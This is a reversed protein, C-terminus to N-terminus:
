NERSEQSRSFTKGSSMLVGIPKLPSLNDCVIKITSAIPVSLIAGAIGWLWGWMLLSVLIIVPSLNLRDGMIKPTIFNGLGQQIILLGTSIIIAPGFSPYFQVLALLIPPFAAIFSGLNPIFNLLFTLVGWTVAFDLGVSAFLAWAIFGTAASIVFQLFLYSSIQGSIKKTVERARTANRSSLAKDIKIDFYPAGLLLFVLFFVVLILNTMFGVLFGSLALLQEGIVPALHVNEWWIPSIEFQEMITGILTEFRAHYRPYASIMAMIRTNIFLGGAACVGIFIALVATTTVPTPVKRSSMYKVIPAFLFYLLAAVVLPLFVGSATKLVAGTLIITIIGTFFLIASEPKM